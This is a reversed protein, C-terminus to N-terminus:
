LLTRSYDIFLTKKTLTNIYMLMKGPLFILSILDKAKKPQSLLPNKLKPNIQKCLLGAAIKVHSYFRDWWAMQLKENIKM